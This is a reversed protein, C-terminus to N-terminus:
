HSFIFIIIKINQLSSHVVDLYQKKINPQQQKKEKKKKEKDKISGEPECVFMKVCSDKRINRADVRESTFEM